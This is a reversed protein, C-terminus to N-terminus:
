VSVWQGFVLSVFKECAKVLRFHKQRGFISGPLLPLPLSRGRALWSSTVFKWRKLGGAPCFGGDEVARKVLATPYEESRRGTRLGRRCHPRSSLARLLICSSSPLWRRAVFGVDDVRRKRCPLVARTGRACNNPVRVSGLNAPCSPLLEHFLRFTAAYKM